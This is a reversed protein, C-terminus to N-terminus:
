FRHFRLFDLEETRFLIGRHSKLDTERDRQERSDRENGTSVDFRRFLPVVRLADGKELLLLVRRGDDFEAVGDAVVWLETQCMMTEGLHVFGCIIGRTRQRRIEPCGIKERVIHLDLETGSAMQQEGAPKVIRPAAGLADKLLLGIVRLRPRKQAISQCAELIQISGDDLDFLSDSEIWPPAPAVGVECQQLESLASTLLGFGGKQFRDLDIRLRYRRM